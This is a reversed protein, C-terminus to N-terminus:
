STKQKRFWEPEGPCEIHNFKPNSQFMRCRKCFKRGDYDHLSKEPVVAPMAVEREFEAVIEVVGPTGTNHNIQIVKMICYLDQEKWLFEYGLQFAPTPACRFRAQVGPLKGPTPSWWELARRILNM